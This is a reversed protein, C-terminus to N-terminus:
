SCRSPVNVLGEAMFLNKCNNFHWRKMITIGGVKGCHPCQINKKLKTITEKTHLRNSAAISIKLKCEESMPKGTRKKGMLAKSLNRKFEETKPKGKMVESTKQRQEKSQPGMNGFKTGGISQNLLLPNNWNEKILEIEFNRADDKNLFEAIIQFNFQEFGINKIIKSSSFYNIGLDDSSPVKNACRVGFYFQGTEKHVLQYVYPLVKTSSYINM